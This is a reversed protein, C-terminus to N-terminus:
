TPLTTSFVTKGVKPFGYVTMAKPLHGLAQHLLGLGCTGKPLAIYPPTTDMADPTLRLGTYASATNDLQLIPVDPVYTQGNITTPLPAKYIRMVLDSLAMLHLLVKPTLKPMNREENVSGEQATPDTREAEHVTFISPIPLNRIVTILWQMNFNIVNWMDQHTRSKKRMSWVTQGAGPNIKGIEDLTIAQITATLLTSLADVVVLDAKISGNALAWYIKEAKEFTNADYSVVRGARVLDIISGAGGDVDLHCVIV